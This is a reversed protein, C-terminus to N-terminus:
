LSKVTERDGARGDMADQAFVAHVPQRGVLFVPPVRVAPRAVLFRLGPMAQLHVDLKQFANGACAPAEILEGRDIIAGANAHELDVVGTRLPGGDREDIIDQAAQRKADVDNLGVVAGLKLRLEVPMELVAVNPMHVDSGPSWMQVALDLAGM